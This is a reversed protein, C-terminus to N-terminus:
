GSAGALTPRAPRRQRAWNAPEALEALQALDALTVGLARALRRRAGPTPQYVGREWRGVTQYACDLLAALESQSLARALRLARLHAGHLRLDNM